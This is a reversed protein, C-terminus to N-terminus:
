KQVMRAAMPVGRRFESDQNSGILLSVPEAPLQHLQDDGIGAGLRDMRNVALHKLFIGRHQVHASIEAELDLRIRLIWGENHHRQRKLERMGWRSPCGDFNRLTGSDDDKWRLPVRTADELSM